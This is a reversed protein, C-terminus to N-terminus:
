ALVVDRRISSDREQTMLGEGFHHACRTRADRVEHVFEPCHSQNVVVSLKCHSRFQQGIDNQVILRSKQSRRLGNSVSQSNSGCWATSTNNGRLNIDGIFKLYSECGNETPGNAFFGRWDHTHAINETPSSSPRRSGRRHLVSRSPKHLMADVDDAFHM